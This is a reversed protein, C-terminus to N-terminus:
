AHHPLRLKKAVALKVLLLAAERSSFENTLRDVEWMSDTQVMLAAVAKGFFFLSSFCFFM